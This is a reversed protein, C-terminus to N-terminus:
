LLGAAKFMREYIERIVPQKRLNYETVDSVGSLSELKSREYLKLDDPHSKLWERFMVHRIVEPCDPGFVHLNVRPTALRFCRHEHWSPERIYLDYGLAKLQPVYLPEDAPDAVTLDIDVVPKAALGPVATSGVHEISLATDGLAARVVRELNHFIDPWNHNYQVVEINEVPPRGHVWPNEDPKSDYHKTIAGADMM